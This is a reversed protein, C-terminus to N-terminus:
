KNKFYFKRLQWSVERPQPVTRLTKAASSSWVNSVNLGNITYGLTIYHKQVKHYFLNSFWKRHFKWKWKSFWAPQFQKLNENISRTRKYLCNKENVDRTKFKNFFSVYYTLFCMTKWYKRYIECIIASIVAHLITKKPWTWM